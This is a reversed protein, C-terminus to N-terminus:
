KPLYVNWSICHLAGGERAIEAMEIQEINCDPFAAQIFQQAIADEEIDFKPMIINKGVQLFNIYAWNLEYCPTDVKDKFRMETVEFGYSELIRRITAAEEPYCDGHNGMLIRNDGCWKIFGDSHGYVDDEHQTWPIIIVPHGIESELLDKFDADDKKKRNEAFVKDTMVIYPGCPVMNGGDIILNTSRCSIGMGRLVKTVDTITEIDKKNKSEVLYDPHYRYMLFENDVLQIPMYDRAWYDNTSKLEKYEIGIRNLLEVLRQYFKPHGEKKDKLWPSFYVVNSVDDHILSGCRAFRYRRDVFKSFDVYLSTREPVEHYEGLIYDVKGEVTQKSTLLNIRPERIYGVMGNDHGLLVPFENDVGTADYCRFLEACAWPGNLVECGDESILQRILIGGFYASDDLVYKEVSKGKSNARSERKINSAFNLDIGGFDNVYWCLSKSARPHTIIDRHNKNYFYFEIEKFLYKKEGKQIAFSEFLMKAIQEFREEIDSTNMNADLTMLQRLQEIMQINDYDRHYM